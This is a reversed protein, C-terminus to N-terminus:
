KKASSCKNKSSCGSCLACHNGKSDERAKLAAVVLIAAFIIGVIITGM